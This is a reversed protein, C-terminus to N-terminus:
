KQWAQLLKELQQANKVSYNSYNNNMLAHVRGASREMEKIRPVWEGLEEDTYDYRFRVNPPVGRLDWTEHNRGHFRVVSLKSSTVEAVSPMSTAHGPPVDVAVYPIDRSRLFALTGDKHRGDLWEPKRFEVAIQFGFMREQVQEVYALSRSSPLFWPPFQFFVAGLKGAARLPEIAERFRDWTEDLLDDPMYELYVNKELLKPPLGERIDPPLSAPKTPHNTFLSFSKVDFTFDDPTQAAWALANDPKPIGYYTSDVEVLSFQSAYFRLRDGSTKVSLPYFLKSDILSKDVWGAIGCRVTM